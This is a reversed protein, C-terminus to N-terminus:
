AVIRPARLVENVEATQKPHGAVVFELPRPLGERQNRVTPVMPSAIESRFHVPQESWRGLRLLIFQPPPQRPGLHLPWSHLTGTAETPHCQDRCQRREEACGEDDEGLGKPGERGEAPDEWPHQESDVGIRHLHCEGEVVAGVVNVGRANEFHPRSMACRRREEHNPIARDPALVDHVGHAFRHVLDALHPRGVLSRKAIHNSMRASLM